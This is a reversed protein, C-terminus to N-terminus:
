ESKATFANMGINIYPKNVMAAYVSLSGDDEVKGVDAQLVVNWGAESLM